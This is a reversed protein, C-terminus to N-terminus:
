AIGVVATAALAPGVGVLWRAALQREGDLNRVRRFVEDEVRAPVDATQPMGDLAALVDEISVRATRCDACRDLHRDLARRQRAALEGDRAAVIWTRATRCRM